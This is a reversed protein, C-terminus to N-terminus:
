RDYKDPLRLWQMQKEPNTVQAKRFRALPCEQTVAEGLQEIQLPTAHPADVMVRLQGDPLSEFTIDRMDIGMRKAIQQAHAVSCWELAKDYLSGFDGNRLPKLLGEGNNLATFFDPM